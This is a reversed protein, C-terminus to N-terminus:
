IKVLKQYFERPGSGPTVYGFSMILTDKLIPSKIAKNSNDCDVNNLDGPNAACTALTVNNILQTTGEYIIPYNITLVDSGDDDISFILSNGPFPGIQDLLIYTSANLASISVETQWLPDLDDRNVGIRFYKKDIVKYTGAFRANVFITNSTPIVVRGDDLTIEYTLLWYFGPKMDADDQPIPDGNITMGDALERFNATYSTFGSTTRASLDITKYLIKESQVAAGTDDVSFFQRKIDIKKINHSVGQYFKIDVTYASDMLGLNYIIASTRIEVLGGEQADKTVPNDFKTCAGIM